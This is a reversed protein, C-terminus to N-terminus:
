VDVVEVEDEVWVVEDIVCWDEVDFGVDGCVVSERFFGIVLDVFDICEEGCWGGIINYEIWVCLCLCFLECVDLLDVEM